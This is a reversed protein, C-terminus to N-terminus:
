SAAKLDVSITQGPDVRVGNQSVDKQDAITVNYLGAPVLITQGTAIAKGYPTQRMQDIPLSLRVQDPTSAIYVLANRPHDQADTLNVTLAGLPVQIVSNQGQQVNVEFRAAIATRVSIVYSGGPLAQPGSDSKFTLLPQGNESGSAYVAVTVPPQPSGDVGMTVHVAVSGGGFLDNRLPVVLRQGPMIEFDVSQIAGPKEERAAFITWKGPSILVGSDPVARVTGNGQVLLATYGTANGRVDTTTFVVESLTVPLETLTGTPLAIDSAQYSEILDVSLNYNGGPVTYQQQSQFHYRDGTKENTLTVPLMIASGDPRYTAVRVTSWPVADAPMQGAKTTTGEGGNVTVTRDQATVTATGALVGVQANRNDDLSAIFEGDRISVMGASSRLRYASRGDTYGAVRQDTQGDRLMVEIQAENGLAGYHTIELETGSELDTQAGVFVLTGQGDMQVVDKSSIPIQRGTEVSEQKGDGHVITAAGSRMALVAQAAPYDAIRMFFFVAGAVLVVIFVTLLVTRKPSM